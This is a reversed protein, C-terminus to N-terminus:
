PTVLANLVIWPSYTGGPTDPATITIAFNHGDPGPTVYFPMSNAGAFTFPPEPIVQHIEHTVNDFNILQLAITWSGGAPVQIPYGSGSTFNIWPNGFWPTGSSTNGELIHVEVGSITVSAPSTPPLVLVGVAILAVLVVVIAAVGGVLAFIARRIERHRNRIRRGLPASM